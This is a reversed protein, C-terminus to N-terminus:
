EQAEIADAAARLDDSTLEVQDLTRNDVPGFSYAIDIVSGGHHTDEGRLDAVLRLKDALTRPTSTTAM